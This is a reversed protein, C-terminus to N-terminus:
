GRCRVSKKKSWSSNYKVGNCRVYTRVQVYYRKGGKLNKVTLKGKKWSKVTKIRSKKLSYRIQYGKTYKKKLKKWKVTFKRVGKNLKKIKTKKMRIKYSAEGSGYYWERAIAAVRYTGPAKSEANLYKRFPTVRLNEAFIGAFGAIYITNHPM